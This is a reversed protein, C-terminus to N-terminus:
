PLKGKSVLESVHDLEERVEQLDVEEAMLLQAHQVARECGHAAMDEASMSLCVSLSQVRNAAILKSTKSVVATQGGM